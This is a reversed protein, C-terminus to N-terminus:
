AAGRGQNLVGTSGAGSTRAYFARKVLETLILFGAVVAALFAFYPARPVVFGFWHGVPTFPLAITVASVSLALGTVLSCPRSAFLNRRTRVAFIMLLQTVLSEIFWGTRFELMGAHFILILVAFTILDFFTSIPAIMLMFREILRINWHVPRAIAEPDIDDFPLGTQALDYLLNTLLVQIPLMPLFPLFLGALATSMINGFNASSAMLIYKDANIITRRGELVGDHVVTLDRDLLIIDAAAKAVDAASDVSIGIDAAHLASADNIGDGLFGVVQGSRKLAQLVRLKQQPTVRCFLNLRPLRGLLAEDSMSTLEDGTVLGLVPVGLADCLHRAVRENDGTLIKVTVGSQALAGIAEAASAKPPDLFVLFGEFALEAEDAVQTADHDSNLLRTGVALTRLGESCLEEFRAQLQIRSEPGLPCTKGDLDLFSTALRLIDEPAGKVILVREDDKEVFVSVRRREFDFPVEDLKRWGEVDLTGHELIADDLPSKLGTEFYSNLYALQFVRESEAGRGDIHRVLRVRAETLTGTKDTCLVDIAGLNHIAALRKVVVQKRALRVAGRALTLTLIMPLLEPTLGVALALAFMLSELWARRFLICETLVFLVLLLSIRLLLGAFRLVGTEFATPPAKTALAAALEGLATTRGTHCVLLTATGSIVSTGSFAASTAEGLTTVAEMSDGANKQVPYPEGTLLAQNVFLYRADLLRGDAPVLDGAALRVVDGPVLHSVPLAIQKGDRLTRARLGVRERLAEVASQARTEQIFDLVVSLSVITTVIVFSPLDGTLASLVSAFLLIIVLPNSFRGLFRVWGPLPKPVASENPGYHILRRQAESSALGDRSTRLGNLLQEIPQNWFPTEGTDGM